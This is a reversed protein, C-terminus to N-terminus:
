LDKDKFGERKISGWSRDGRFFKWFAELKWFMQLQYYTISEIVACVVMKLFDRFYRYRRFTVEEIIIAFFSLSLTFGLTLAFFFLIFGMDLVHLYYGLAIMFYSFLQIVPHLMEFIAYFPFSVMGIAGYRPNFLMGRYRWITDILGRHWRERQTRWGSVNFPVETWAAPDPIFQVNYEKSLKRMHHHIRVILEIDEGVTNTLYGGCEVIADKNFLGYAGSIIVAGGLYNWGLRGFLFARLYEVVQIAPLIQRPFRVKIMQGFQIKCDNAVGICVGAATGKKILVPRIMHLLADKQVITDADITLFFPTRCINIGANLSDSKGGNEKDVVLLNPVNKSHYVNKVKQTELRKLVAPEIYVLDFAKKLIELTRDTSGDNIVIIEIARYDITLLSRVNGVIHVEENYAPVLISIPPLDVSSLLKDFDELELLRFRQYIVILSLSYLILYFFNLLAFYFLCGLNIAYIFNLLSESVKSKEM